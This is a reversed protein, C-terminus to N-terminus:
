DLDDHKSKETLEIACELSVTLKDVAAALEPGLALKRKVLAEGSFSAYEELKSVDTVLNPILRGDRDDIIFYYCTGHRPDGNLVVYKRVDAREKIPTKALEVMLEMMELSFLASRSQDGFFEWANNTEYLRAERISQGCFDVVRIVVSRGDKENGKREAIYFPAGLENFQKIFESIKM